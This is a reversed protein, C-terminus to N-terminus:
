VFCVGFSYSRWEGWIKRNWKQLYIYTLVRCGRKKKKLNKPAAPTFTKTFRKLKGFPSESQLCSLLRAPVTRGFPKPASFKLAFSATNAFRNKKNSNYLAGPFGKIECVYRHIYMYIHVHVLVCIYIIHELMYINIKFNFVTNYKLSMQVVLFISFFNLKSVWCFCERTVLNFCLLIAWSLQSPLPPQLCSVM